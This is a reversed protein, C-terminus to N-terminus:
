RSEDVSGSMKDLLARNSEQRLTACSKVALKGNVNGGESELGNVNKYSNYFSPTNQVCGGSMAFFVDFIGYAIVERLGLKNM